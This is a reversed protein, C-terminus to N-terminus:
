ESGGSDPGEIPVGLVDAVRDFHALFAEPTPEDCSTPLVASRVGTERTLFEVASATHYVERVVLPIQQERILETLAALHAFMMFPDHFPDADSYRPPLPPERDHSAGLVHDYALLHTYGLEEVAVGIRRVAEPDGGLETQPYVAGIRVGGIRVGGIGVGPGAAM